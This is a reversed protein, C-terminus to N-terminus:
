LYKCGHVMSNFTWQTRSLQFVRCSDRLLSCSSRGSVCLKNCHTAVLIENRHRASHQLLLGSIKKEWLIKQLVIWFRKVSVTAAACNRFTRPLVHARTCYSYVSIGCVCRRSVRVCVCYVWYVYAGHRLNYTHPLTKCYTATRQLENCYTAIIQVYLHTKDCMYLIRTFFKHNMDGIHILRAARLLSGHWTM